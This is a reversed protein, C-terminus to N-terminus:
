LVLMGPAVSITLALAPGPTLAVVLLSIFLPKRGM